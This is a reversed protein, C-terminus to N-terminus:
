AQEGQVTPRPAENMEDFFARLTRPERGLIACLTLANGRLGTRDYHEFMPRMPATQDGLTDPDVKEARVTRGLVEGALAAVDHRNLWGEACLEFTGYLLRDETLAIAATEAIDRYDVRSFRTDSSWPEALVGTRAIGLWARAYNQFFLAPHLLTYELGSDLIAEEVPAKAAHNSLASLVPHIVSSFVFRRVGAKVAAAVFDVGVQAENPLFAPAVYFVSEVGVLAAAISRQDRLDGVVADAAGEDRVPSLAKAEHVLGRVTVGRAVLAPVVHGAFKGAAGVAFVLGSM